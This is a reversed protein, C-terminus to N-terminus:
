QMVKLPERWGVHIRCPGVVTDAAVKEGNVKVGLGSEIIRAAEQPTGAFGAEVLANVVSIHSRDGLKVFTMTPAKM